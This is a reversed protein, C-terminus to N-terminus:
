GFVPMRLGNIMNQFMYPISILREGVEQVGSGKSRYNFNVLGKLLERVYPDIDEPADGYGVVATIVMSDYTRISSGWSGSGSPSLVIRPQFGARVQYDAPAVTTPTGADDYTVISTVSQLPYLPPYIISDLEAYDLGLEWTQTILCRRTEHEFYATVEEIIDLLVPDDETIDSAFNVWTRAQDLSLASNSPATIRTKIM